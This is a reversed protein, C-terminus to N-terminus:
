LEGAVGVFGPGVRLSVKKDDNSEDILVDVMIGAVMAVGAAISLGGTVRWVDTRTAAGRFDDLTTAEEADDAAVEGLGLAVCGFIALAVGLPAVIVRSYDAGQADDAVVAPPAASPPPATPAPDGSPKPPPAAPVCRAINGRALDAETAPPNSALFARYADAAEDCRGARRESQGLTYYLDPHPEVAIAERLAASAADFDGKEYAAIGRDLAARAEPKMTRPPGASADGPVGVGGITVFTVLLTVVARVRRASSRLSRRM